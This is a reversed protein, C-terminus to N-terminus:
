VDVRAFFHLEAFRPQEEESVQAVIQAGSVESMITADFFLPHLLQDRRVAFVLYLQVTIELRVFFNL